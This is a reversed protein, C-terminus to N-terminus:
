DPRTFAVFAQPLVKGTSLTIPGYLEIHDIPDVFTKSAVELAEQETSAYGYVDAGTDGDVVSLNGLVEQTVIDSFPGMAEKEAQDQAAWMREAEGSGPGTLENKAVVVQCFKKPRVGGVYRAEVIELGLRKFDYGDLRSVNRWGSQILQSPVQSVPMGMFKRGEKTEYLGPWSLIAKVVAQKDLM